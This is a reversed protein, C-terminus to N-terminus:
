DKGDCEGRPIRAIGEGPWLVNSYRPPPCKEKSAFQACILELFESVILRPLIPPESEAGMWDVRVACLGSAFRLRVLTSGLELVRGSLSSGGFAGFRDLRDYRDAPITARDCLM